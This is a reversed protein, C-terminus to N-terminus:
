PLLLLTKSFLEALLVALTPSRRALAYAMWGRASRRACLPELTLLRANPFVERARRLVEGSTYYTTQERLYRENLAAVEKASKGKQFRNRVGLMAWFLLWPRSQIITALPVKVHPEIPKHRSPFIHLSAGETRLVRRIERLAEDYNQVHEFVEFSIVADFSDDPYPLRYPVGIANLREGTGLQDPFDCGHADMGAAVLGEVMVGEGCGFDLIRTNPRVPGGVLALLRLFFGAAWENAARGEVDM